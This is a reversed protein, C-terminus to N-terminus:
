AASVVPKQVRVDLVSQLGLALTVLGTGRALAEFLPLCPAMANGEVLGANDPQAPTAERNTGPRVAWALQLLSRDSRTPALVLAAGLLGRSVAVPALPGCSEIDYAVYLVPRQDAAVQMFAELLGVCFSRDFVSVTMYPAHCGTAICWYGAAANHVSNHFKTPSTLMPTRVLVECLYDTIALDAHTTAFVSALQAPDLGSATCAAAAVEIALAVSDPARRREASPLLDTAPRRLAGLAPDGGHALVEVAAKWGPLRPAWFSIGEVFATPASPATM